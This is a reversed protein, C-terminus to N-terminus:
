REYSRKREKEDLKREVDYCNECVPYGLGVSTHYQKSTYSEGFTMAKECNICNVIENMDETILVVHLKDDVVHPEYEHKEFDWKQVLM